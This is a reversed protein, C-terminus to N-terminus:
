EFEPSRREYGGRLITYHLITYYLMTYYLTTYYLITYYLITYYLVNYYLTTGFVRGLGEGPKGRGPIGAEGPSKTIESTVRNNRQKAKGRAEGPTGGSITATLKNKVKATM